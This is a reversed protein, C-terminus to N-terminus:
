RASTTRCACSRAGQMSPSSGPAGMARRGSGIEFGSNLVASFPVVSASTSFRISNIRWCVNLCSCLMALNLKSSRFSLPWSVTRRLMARSGWAMPRSPGSRSFLGMIRLTTSAAVPTVVMVATGSSYLPTPM